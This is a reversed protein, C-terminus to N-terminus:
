LHPYQPQRPLSTSKILSLLPPPLPRLVIEDLFLQSLTWRMRGFATTYQLNSVVGIRLQDFSGLPSCSPSASKGGNELDFQPWEQNCVVLAGGDTSYRKAREVKIKKTAQALLRRLPLAGCKHNGDKDDPIEIFM